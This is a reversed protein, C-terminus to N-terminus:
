PNETTNLALTVVLPRHDSGGSTHYIYASVATFTESHFVYDLRLVKPILMYDSVFAPLIEVSDVANAENFDPFTFGMGQGVERYSDTLVDAIMTYETNLDNLNFDGVMLVPLTEAQIRALLDEFEQHRFGINFFGDGTMGPHTPHINYIVISQGNIDIVVRQHGLPIPLFDYVWYANELIPYKSLIAQGMTMRQQKTGDDFQGHIAKYPYADLTNLRDEFDVSVEQLAVIDASIDTIIEPIREPTRNRALLNHTQITFTQSSDALIPPQRPIFQGGYHSIFLLVPLILTVAIQWQRLVLMMPLLLLAPMWMLHAFTSFFAIITSGEPIWWRLLIHLSVSIGYSGICLLVVHYLITM